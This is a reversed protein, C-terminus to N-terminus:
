MITCDDKKGDKKEAELMAKEEETLLGKKARAEM